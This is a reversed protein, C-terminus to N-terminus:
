DKNNELSTLLGHNHKEKRSTKTCNAMSVMQAKTKTKIGQISTSWFCLSKGTEQANKPSYHVLDM